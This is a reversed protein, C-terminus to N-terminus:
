AVALRCGALLQIVCASLLIYGFRLCGRREPFHLGGLAFDCSGLGLLLLRLGGNGLGSGHQAVGHDLGGKGALYDSLHDIRAIHGRGALREKEQFGGRSGFQM